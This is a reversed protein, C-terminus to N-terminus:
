REETLALVALALGMAPIVKVFVGLPDAWLEPTLWTGMALYGASVLIAGWAATRTRKRWLLGFGIILDVLAGGGVLARAVEYGVRDSLVATAAEKQWFGIVGSAIWFGALVMVLIPLALQARGFVREQMTSPLAELTEDLSKLRGGSAKAWPAPDGLVGGALVKLATTRLPSRWGLWGAADAGLALLRGLWEPLRWTWLADERGVWRRLKAIVAELAHPADEVLDYDRRAEVEGALAKRVAEAVDSAAVTQVKAKALVIPQVLPFAALMRVLATGGYAGAAIVLGPKFITWELKSARLAADAAAKTRLFATSADAEAGPASIQVYRTVGAAECAAILARIAADQAKRLDDKAGDQLAGSANVVAEVGSLHAAWKGAEDLTAIDAGIWAIGPALRRGREASRGLGVVEMGAATLARVIELGILGYGGVVLVRM